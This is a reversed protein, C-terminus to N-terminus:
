FPRATIADCQINTLQEYIRNNRTLYERQAQVQLTGTLPGNVGNYLTIRAFQQSSCHSTTKIHRHTHTKYRWNCHTIAVVHIIILLTHTQLYQSSLEATTSM